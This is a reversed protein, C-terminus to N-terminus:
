KNFKSLLNEVQKYVDDVQSSIKKNFICLNAFHECNNHILNYGDTGIKSVAIRAIEADDNKDLMEEKSYIRVGFNDGFSKFEDLTTYIVKVKEPHDYIDMPRGFQVVRNDDIYIGHHFFDHIKIRIHAGKYPLINEWQSSM